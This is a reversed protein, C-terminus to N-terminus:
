ADAMGARALGQHFSRRAAVVSPYDNPNSEERVRVAALTLRQTPFRDNFEEMAREAEDLRDVHAYASILYLRNYWLNPRAQISRRLWPIAAEYQEAYFHARGGFWYFIGISPDQPSLRVAQDVLPPAEAPRGVLILENGKNAYALAFNRDLEVASSFAELAAQHRGRAREILGHALHALALAPDILLAQQVAKGAAALEDKGVENWHNLHDNAIVQALRAWAEASGSDLELSHQLLQRVVLTREPAISGYFLATARLRLDLADPQPAREARRGEARVLQVNLSAAIRGTILNELGGLDVFAHEFRDGWLQQGSAAEILQVNTRVMDGSRGISGMLLYRVGLERAIQPLDLPSAKYTLATAASIVALDRMRSLDVTLDSTVADTLYDQQPDGSLNRFPLVLIAPRGDHPPPDGLPLSPLSPLSSQPPPSSAPLASPTASEAAAARGAYLRVAEPVGRLPRLGRDDFVLGSGTVLDRVTRSVLTEGPQALDVIRAAIHVAIGSIDSVDSDNRVIEGTHLGSRVAIGLPAVAEAAALACRVAREPSDFTALFGDGLHRIEGDIRINPPAGASFFLDSAKEEAMAHLFQTLETSM